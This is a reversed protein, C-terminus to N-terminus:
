QEKKEDDGGISPFSLDPIDLDNNDTSLLSFPNAAAHAASRRVPKAAPAFSPIPEDATRAPEAAPAPTPAPSVSSTQPAPASATVPPMSTFTNPVDLSPMHPTFSTTGNVKPFEQSAEAMQALAALSSTTYKVDPDSEPTTPSSSAATPTAAVAPAPVHVVPPAFSPPATPAPASSAVPSPTPTPTPLVPAPIAPAAVAPASPTSAAPAIPAAAPVSPAASAYSPATPTYSPVSTQVPVPASPAASPAVAPAPAPAVPRVTVPEVPTVATVPASANKSAAAFLDQEAQSLADFSDNRASKAAPAYSQPADDTEAAPRRFRDASFLPAVGGAPAQPAAASATASAAASVAAPAPAVARPKSDLSSASGDADGDATIYDAIRDFSEIRSLLEVCTNLFYDVQREDYGKKGKRQTFVANAVYESTIRGLKAADAADAGDVGLEAACKDVIQDTLRDVQKRDYAPAHVRAPSFREREAREAHGSIERYLEETRAKWAVRGQQSIEWQTQKDVVARELRALAADVQAIVYGGRALDFSTDQIDRQTLQAGDSEYLAHARELFADVQAPDYGWKRKGARPIGAESQQAM